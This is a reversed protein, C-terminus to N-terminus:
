LTHPTCDFCRGRYLLGTHALYERAIEPIAKRAEAAAKMAAAASDGGSRLTRSYSGVTESQMEPGDDSLAANVNKRALEQADELLKYQDTLACCAMKVAELNAYKEAKGQTFYDLFSSARIVFRRFDEVSLTGNYPGYCYFDYDSYIM